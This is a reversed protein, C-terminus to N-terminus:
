ALSVRGSRIIGTDGVQGGKEPYFPSRDLVLYFEKGATEKDIEELLEDRSLDVIGIVKGESSLRNYGVFETVMGRILSSLLTDNQGSERTILAARARERQQELCRNFAKEDVSLGKEGLIEKTLDLPFGFTDYLKFAVEGPLISKAEADSSMSSIYEELIEMGQELTEQFREEELRVVQVIYNLKEVIEPYFEGMLEAVLPVADSIFTGELQLLKGHRVARRLIRRLVYGRGENSPMIGDAVMFTIGRLHETIVRLSVDNQGGSATASIGAKAAFHDLLPRITDIEFLNNVGQLVM